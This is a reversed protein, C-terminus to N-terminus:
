RTVSATALNQERLGNIYDHAVNLVERNYYYDRYVVESAKEAALGEKEEEKQADMEKRRRVFDEEVLSITKEQKQRVYMEKRRLLDIFEKDQGVRDVSNERLTELLNAPMMNYVRHRAAPVRDHPLAHDLDSESIDM